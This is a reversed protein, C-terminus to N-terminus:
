SKRSFWSNMCNLPAPDCICGQVNTNWLVFKHKNILTAVDRYCHQWKYTLNLQKTTRMTRM